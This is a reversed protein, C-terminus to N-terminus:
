MQRSSTRRISPFIQTSDASPLPAVKTTSSGDAFSYTAAGQVVGLGRLVEACVLYEPLLLRVTSANDRPILPEVVAQRFDFCPGAPEAAPVRSTAALGLVAALVVSRAVRFWCLLGERRM